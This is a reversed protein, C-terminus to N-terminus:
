KRRVGEKIVAFNNHLFFRKKFVILQKVKECPHEFLVQNKVENWVVVLELKSDSFFTKPDSCTPNTVHFVVSVVFIANM